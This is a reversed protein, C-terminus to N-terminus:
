ICTPGAIPKSNSRLDREEEDAQIYFIGENDPQGDM